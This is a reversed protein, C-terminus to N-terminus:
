DSIIITLTLIVLSTEIEPTLAARQYQCLVPQTDRNLNLVPLIFHASFRDGKASYLTKPLNPHSVTSLGETLSVTIRHLCLLLLVLKFFDSVRTIWLGPNQRQKKTLLVQDEALKLQHDMTGSSLNYSSLLYTLATLFLDLLHLEM